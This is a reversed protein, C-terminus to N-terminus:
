HRDIIFQEFTKLFKKKKKKFDEEADGSGAPVDGSGPNNQTPFSPAGMGGISSPTVNEKVEPLDDHKTSAFDKLQQLTMSDALDKVEQSAEKSDLEGKKYAYAMGMLRQQVKSVAPM